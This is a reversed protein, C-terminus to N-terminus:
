VFVIQSFSRIGHCFTCPLRSARAGRQFNPIALKGNVYVDVPVGPIGHVVYSPFTKQQFPSGTTPGAAKVIHLTSNGVFLAVIALAVISLSILAKKFM